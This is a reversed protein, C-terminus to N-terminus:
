SKKFFSFKINSYHKEEQFNPHDQFNRKKSHELIFVGNDTLWSNSLINQILIFYQEDDTDFPPDAFIIDFSKGIKNEEIFKYVDDKILHLNNIELTQATQSIFNICIKNEEVSTVDKSDRSLFELSISGIGAFLDLVSIDQFRFRHNLINFLGEKAFDTTPRTSINKPASFKRSRFKGSIIRM